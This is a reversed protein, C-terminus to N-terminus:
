PKTEKAARIADIDCAQCEEYTWVGHPCKDNKNPRGDPFWPIGVPRNYGDELLKAAKEMGAKEADRLAAAIDTVGLSADWFWNNAKGKSYVLANAVQDWNIPQKM